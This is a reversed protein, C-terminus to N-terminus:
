CGFDKWRTLYSKTWYLYFGLNFPRGVKKFIESDPVKRIKEQIYKRKKLTEGLHQFNWGIARFLAWTSKVRATLLFLVSVGLVLLIHLPVVLWVNKTDLNKLLTLLRNRFNLYDVKVLRDKTATSGSAHYVISTPLYIVRYGALWVRWVLDTDELYIFMDPDYGGIKDLAEKTLIMGASKASFIEKERSYKESFKERVGEYQFFGTFNYYGIIYDIVNDSGLVMLRNQIAGITPDEEFRKVSETLFNPDVEVDNDLFQIYKGKAKEIAKNRALSPGINAGNEILITKPYNKKIFEISGDTSGNDSIIIEFNLYKQAHLSKFYGELHKLDNWNVTVISVLHTAM